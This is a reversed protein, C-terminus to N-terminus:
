DSPSGVSLLVTRLVTENGRRIRKSLAQRSIGIEDALEDLSVESPTEFYGRQLALLLAERQQQSLGFRHGRSSEETLTYTRKIHIPVNHDIVFNHFTSLADHNPFRLRFTWEENGSAELIVANTQGIGEILDMPETKWVIRYLGKDGFRDVQVVREVAPHSRVHQEFADHDDGVAWVFPMLMDGTPVIRELELRMRPPAKSLIQGLDFDEGDITFELIVSM